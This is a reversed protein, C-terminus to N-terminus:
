YELDGDGTAPISVPHDVDDHDLRSRSGMSEAEDGGAIGRGVLRCDGGTELQGLGGDTLHDVELQLEYFPHSALLDAPRYDDVVGRLHILSDLSCGRGLQLTDDADGALSIAVGGLGGGGLLHRFFESDGGLVVLGVLPRELAHELVHHSGHHGILADPEVPSTRGVDAWKQDFGTHNAPGVSRSKELPTLGLNQVDGSESHELHFLHEVGECGLVRLPVHM